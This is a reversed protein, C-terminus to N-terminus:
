RRAGLVWTAAWPPGGRPARRIQAGAPSLEPHPQRGRDTAAAQAQGIALGSRSASQRANWSLPSPLSLLLREYRSFSAVVRGAARLEAQSLRPVDTSGVGHKPGRTHWVLRDRGAATPASGDR